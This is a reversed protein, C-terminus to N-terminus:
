QDNQKRRQGVQTFGKVKIGRGILFGKAMGRLDGLCAVAQRFRWAHSHASKRRRAAIVAVAVVVVAVVVVVLELYHQQPDGPPKFSM